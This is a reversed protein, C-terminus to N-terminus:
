VPEVNNITSRLLREVRDAKENKGRRRLMLILQLPAELSQRERFINLLELTQEHSGDKDRLVSDIQESTIGVSIAIDKMVNWGIIDAIQPSLPYLDVESFFMFVILCESEYVKYPVQVKM